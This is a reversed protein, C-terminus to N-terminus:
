SDPEFEIGDGSPSAFHISPYKDLGFGCLDAGAHDEVLGPFLQFTQPYLFM